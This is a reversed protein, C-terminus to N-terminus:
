AGAWVCLVYMCVCVCPSIKVPTISRQPINLKVVCVSNLGFIFHYSFVYFLSCHLFLLQLLVMHIIIFLKNPILLPCSERESACVLNRGQECSGSVCEGHRPQMGINAASIFGTTLSIKPVDQCKKTHTHTHTHAYLLSLSAESQSLHILLPM